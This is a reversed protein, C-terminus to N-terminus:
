GMPSCEPCRGHSQFITGCDTCQRVPPPTYAAQPCMIGLNHYQPPRSLDADFAHKPEQSFFDWFGPPFFAVQGDPQKDQTILDKVVEEQQISVETYGARYLGSELNNFAQPTVTIKM